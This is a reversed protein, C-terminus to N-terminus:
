LSESNGLQWWPKRPSTDFEMRVKAKFRGNQTSFQVGSRPFCTIFKENKYIGQASEASGLSPLYPYLNHSNVYIYYNSSEDFNRFFSRYAPDNPLGPQDGNVVDIISHIANTDNSFVVFEDLIVYKPQDFKNFLKGLFLKFFGKMALYSIVRGKYEYAEFKVPTRSRIKKEIARLDHEANERDPIHFAAVYSQIAGTSDGPLMALAIEQGIWDFYDLDKGKRKKKEVKKDSKSVGLLKGISKQTEEYEKYGADEKMIEGIKGYFEDFSEFDLALLFSTSYPLINHVRVDSGPMQVLVSAMSEQNTDVTVYGSMEAYTDQMKLDFSAFDLTKSINGATTVDDM